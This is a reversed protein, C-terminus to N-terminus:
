KQKMTAISTRRDELITVNNGLYFTSLVRVLVKKNAKIKMIADRRPLKSSTTISYDVAGEATRRIRKHDKASRGDYRNFIDLVETPQYEHFRDKIINSLDSASGACPWVIHYLLQQDDVNVIDPADPQLDDVKLKSVLTSKAGTKLCGNQDIISAPVACLEYHFLTQLTTM